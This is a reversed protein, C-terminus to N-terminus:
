KKIVNFEYIGPAATAKLVRLRIQSASYSKPFNIVKCDGMPEDSCYIPLWRGNRWIDISYQQIRNVRTNSFGDNGNKTDCYEFITIKDFSKKEDLPVTLCALTDTRAAAWYTQMGGDTARSADYLGSASELELVSSASAKSNLSIFEGNRPLPKGKRIGGLRHNEM